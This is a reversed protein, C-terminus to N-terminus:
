IREIDINKEELLKQMHNRARSYQSKSTSISIGLEESIEKHTYGEIAYMNFVVRYGFPISQLIKIIDDAAIQEITFDESSLSFAVDELEVWDSEKRKKRIADLATNVTIRRIWGELSGERKFDKIKDFVKIFADQLIDQAEDFRSAYRLAVAMMKPAYRDYLAKQASVKQNACEDLFQIDTVRQSDM